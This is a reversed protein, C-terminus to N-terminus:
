RDAVMQFVSVTGGAVAAVRRGEVRVPPVWTAPGQFGSIDVLDLTEKTAGTEEDLVVARSGDSVYVMGHDVLPASWTVVQEERHEWRTAGTAVDLAVVRPVGYSAVALVRTGLSGPSLEAWSAADRREWLRHPLAAGPAWEWVAAYGGRGIVAVRAQYGSLGYVDEPLATATLSAGSDLSLVHFASATVLAAWEPTMVLDSCPSSWEREWRPMRTSVEVGMVTQRSGDSVMALSGGGSVLPWHGGASRWLVVPSRGRLWRTVRGDAQGMIVGEGDTAMVRPVWGYRSQFPPAGKPHTFQFLLTGDKLNFATVARDSFLIVADRTLAPMVVEGQFGPIPQRWALQATQGSITLLVCGVVFV